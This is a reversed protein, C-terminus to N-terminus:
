DKPSVTREDLPNEFCWDDMPGVIKELRNLTQGMEPFAEDELLTLREIIALVRRSHFLHTKYCHNRDFYLREIHQELKEVRSESARLDRELRAIRQALQSERLYDNM